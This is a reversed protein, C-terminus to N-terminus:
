LCVKSSRDGSEVIRLQKPVEQSLPQLAAVGLRSSWHGRAIRAANLTTFRHSRIFRRPRLFQFLFVPDLLQDKGFLRHVGLRDLFVELPEETSGIGFSSQRPYSFLQLIETVTYALRGDRRLVEFGPQDARQQVSTRQACSIRESELIQHNLRSMREASFASVSLPNKVLSTM